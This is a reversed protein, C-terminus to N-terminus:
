GARKSYAELFDAAAKSGGSFSKKAEIAPESPPICTHDARGVIVHKLPSFEDWSSVITKQM